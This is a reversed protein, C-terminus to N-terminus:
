QADTNTSGGIADRIRKKEEECNDEIQDKIDDKLYGMNYMYNRINEIVNPPFKDPNSQMYRYVYLDASTIKFRQGFVTIVAGIYFDAPTYYDPNM